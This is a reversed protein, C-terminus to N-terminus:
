KKKVLMKRDLEQKYLHAAHADPNAIKAWGSDVNFLHGNTAFDMTFRGKTKMKTSRNDYSKQM